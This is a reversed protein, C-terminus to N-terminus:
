ILSFLMLFNLFLVSKLFSSKFLPISYIKVLYLPGKNTDLRLAPKIRLNLHLIANLDYFLGTFMMTSLAVSMGAVLDYDKTGAQAVNEIQKQFEGRDAFTGKDSEIWNIKIGLDEELALNREYVEVAVEDGDFSEAWFCETVNTYKAYLFNVEKNQAELEFGLIESIPIEAPAETADGAPAETAAPAETESGSSAPTDNCSVFCVTLMLVALLMAIVKRFIGNM